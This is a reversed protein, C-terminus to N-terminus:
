SRFPVPLMAKPKSQAHSVDNLLRLKATLVPDLGQGSLIDEVSEATQRTLCDPHKSDPSVDRAGTASGLEAEGDLKSLKLHSAMVVLFIYLAKKASLSRTRRVVITPIRLGIPEFVSAV